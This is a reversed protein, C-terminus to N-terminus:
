TATVKKGDILGTDRAFKAFRQGDLTLGGGNLSMLSSDLGSLNRNSGFMAFREFVDHLDELTAM